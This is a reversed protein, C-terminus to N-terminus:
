IFDHDRGPHSIKALAGATRRESGRPFYDRHLTLVEHAAVAM